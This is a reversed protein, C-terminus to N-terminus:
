GVETKNAVGCKEVRTGVSRGNTILRMCPDHEEIAWEIIMMDDECRGKRLRKRRREKLHNSVFIDEYREHFQCSFCFSSVVV